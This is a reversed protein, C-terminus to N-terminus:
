APRHDLVRRLADLRVPKPLCFDFRPDDPRASVPCVGVVMRSARLVEPVEDATNVFVVADPDLRAGEASALIQVNRYGLKRLLAVMVRQCIPSPDVVVVRALSPATM